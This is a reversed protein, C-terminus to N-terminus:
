IVDKVVEGIIKNVDAIIVNFKTEAEFFRRAEDISILEMYKEQVIKMKEENEKGTQLMEVQVEYRLEDFEKIKQKLDTKIAIAQKAMRYNMYEESEKIEQALKNATDYINM